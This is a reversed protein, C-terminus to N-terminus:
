HVMVGFSPGKSGTEDPCCRGDKTPPVPPAVKTRGVDRKARAAKRCASDKCDGIAVPDAPKPPDDAVPTPADAADNATGVFRLRAIDPRSPETCNAMWGRSCLASDLDIRGSEIQESAKAVAASTADVTKIVSAQQKNAAKMQEFEVVRWTVFAWVSAVVAILALAVYKNLGFM